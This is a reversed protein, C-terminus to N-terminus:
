IKLYIKYIEAKIEELKEIKKKKKNAFKKLPITSESSVNEPIDNSSLKEEVEDFISTVNNLSIKIKKINKDIKELIKKLNEKIITQCIKKFSTISKLSIINSSLSKDLESIEDIESSKLLETIKKFESDKLYQSIINEFNKPTLNITASNLNKQLEEKNNNVENIENEKNKLYVNKEEIEIKLQKIENEKNKLQVNREEIEIKLQKIENEKNKIINQLDSNKHELEFILKQKKSTIKLRPLIEEIEKIWCSKCYSYVLDPRNMNLFYGDSVGLYRRTTSNFISNNSSNLEM